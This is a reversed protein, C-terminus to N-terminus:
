ATEGAALLQEMAQMKAETERWERDRDSDPMIGGGAYLRCCRSALEMCRLSVYLRTPHSGAGIVGAFGSYYRRDYGENRLIFDLAQRKPLGCVAPTPHLAQLLYGLRRSNPLTFFFDTRLHYVGGARKAYPGVDYQSQAFRRLCDGIYRSVCRHERFDKGGWPLAAAPLDEDLPCGADALEAVPLTGALAMTRWKRGCGELLTEPTAMLWTGCQPASVLAVFMRPYRRCAALFLRQPSVGGPVARDAYRSLVLKAVRGARLTQYFIDFPWPSRGGGEMGESLFAPPLAGEGDDGGVPHASRVSREDPFLLIACKGSPRFPAMVFGSRGNLLPLAGIEEPQADGLAMRNYHREGPFRFCVYAERSDASM